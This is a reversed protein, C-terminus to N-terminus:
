AEREGVVMRERDWQDRWVRTAMGAREFLRAVDAGQGHGIEVGVHRAGVLLALRAIRVYFALGGDAALLARADEYDRVSAPLSAYAGASIYPPNATLVDVQPWAHPDGDSPPLANVSSAVDLTPAFVDGYAVSVRPDGLLAINDRALELAPAAVDVGVASGLAPGLIHSLLLPIPASGTCLDLIRLGSPAPAPAAASRTTTAPVSPACPVSSASPAFPDLSVPGPASASPSSPPPTAAGAPPTPLTLAFREFVHATEPRPILTPARCLLRLPGFDTTGLIYQIPEGAARREVRARLASASCDESLWRLEHAADSASLEPNRQLRELLAARDPLTATRLGRQVTGLRSIRPLRHM